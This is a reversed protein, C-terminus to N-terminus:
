ATQENRTQLTYLVLGLNKRAELVYICGSVDRLLNLFERLNLPEVVTANLSDVKETAHLTTNRM